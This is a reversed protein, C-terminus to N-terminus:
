VGILFTSCLLCNALTCVYNNEKNCTSFFVLSFINLLRIPAAKFIRGEGYKINKILEGSGWQNFRKISKHLPLMIFSVLLCALRAARQAFM